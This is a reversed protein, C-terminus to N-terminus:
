FYMQWALLADNRPGALADRRAIDLRLAHNRGLTYRQTLSIESADYKHGWAYRM